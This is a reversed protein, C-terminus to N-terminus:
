NSYKRMYPEIISRVEEISLDALDKGAEISHSIVNYSNKCQSIINDKALKGADDGDTLVILTMAGSSDLLIKQGPSLNNGFMGLVNVYGAEVARWCNGPSEVLIAVGTKEIAISAKWFNYLYEDANFDPSHKWKSYKYKDRELPCPRKPNHYVNCRECKEYISRGTCGVMYKYNDDYIPVVARCYMRKTPDMCIGVDYDDLTKPNFGRDLFYKAPMKLSKRIIDRTITYKSEPRKYGHIRSQMIFRNSEVTGSDVTLNDLKINVLDECWKKATPFDVAKDGRDEWKNEYRSLLGRVLGIPSGVFIKECSKTRCYWNGKCTDGTHFINFADKRDGGHIPCVGVYMRNTERLDLGFYEIIKPFNDMVADSLLKLKQQEIETSHYKKKQTSM